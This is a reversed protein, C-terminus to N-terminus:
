PSRLRYFREPYNTWQQDGFYSSGGILINTSVPSWLPSAPNTSAEVVVTMGSAWNITFGFQNTRVGFSGDSTEMKPRWVATPRGGFTAGWGMTGPLYYATAYNDNRLAYSGLGPANGRFYVGTLNFCNEFVTDGFNIVSSGVMVNTLSPCFAFADSGVSTVSNGIMVSTLKDDSQFAQPGISTVSDPIAYAGVKGGPYEVLTAKKKDFLVGDVNSYAPNNTDVTIATLMSCGVCTMGGISTVSKGIAINTLRTCYYFAFTGITTVSDPVTLNLLLTCNAFAWVGITTVSNGITVSTLGACDGFGGDGISTVNAGITINTLNTCFSFAGNGISTVSSPIIYSAGPHGPPYRIVKSQNKNFLIADVSSFETNNTDVTIATLSFCYGFAGNGISIVSDPITISNLTTCEFFAGEGINTVGNGMTANSLSPCYEFAWNGISIVSNPITITTLSVCYYFAYDGIATVPYGNTTDPITVDGGPGTYGTITITGNNTAFTFQAQLVAPLTLLLLLPLIWSSGILWLLHHSFLNLRPPIPRESSDSSGHYLKANM